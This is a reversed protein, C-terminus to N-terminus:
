LSEVISLSSSKILFYSFGNSLGHSITIPLSNITPNSFPPIKASNIARIVCINNGSCNINLRIIAIAITIVKTTALKDPIKIGNVNFLNLISGAIEEPTNFLVVAAHPNIFYPNLKVLPNDFTYNGARLEALMAKEAANQRTVLSDITVHKIAM